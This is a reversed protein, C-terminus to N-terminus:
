QDSLKGESHILGDQLTEFFGNLTNVLIKFIQIEGASGFFEVVKM